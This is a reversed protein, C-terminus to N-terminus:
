KVNITEDQRTFLIDLSCVGEEEEEGLNSFEGGQVPGQTFTQGRSVMLSKLGQVLGMLGGEERVGGGETIDLLPLPSSLYLLYGLVSNVSGVSDSM